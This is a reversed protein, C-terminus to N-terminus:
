LVFIIDKKTLNENNLGTMYYDESRNFRNRLALNKGVGLYFFQFGTADAPLMTKVPYFTGKIKIGKLKLNEDIM